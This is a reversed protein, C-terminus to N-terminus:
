KTDGYLLFHWLSKGKQRERKWCQHMARVEGLAFYFILLMCVATALCLFCWAHVVLPQLIILIISVIGVPIALFGFSLVAWPLSRWRATGGHFALFAELLYALSGLGADSVPFAHSVNSTLVKVTGDGFLPDWVTKLYGLQYTALYHSFGFCILTLIIVPVRYRWASPNTKWGPPVNDSEHPREFFLAGILIFGIGVFTMILFVTYSPQWVLPSFNLWFGILAFITGIVKKIKM